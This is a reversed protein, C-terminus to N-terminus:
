GAIKSYSLDDNGNQRRTAGQALNNLTENVTNEISTVYGKEFRVREIQTKYKSGSGRTLKDFDIAM